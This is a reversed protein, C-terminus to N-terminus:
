ASDRAAIYAQLPDADSDADYHSISEIFLWFLEQQSAIGLKEYLRRRHVRETNPSINLERAGSKSSHGRLILHAIHKERPTLFNSGFKNFARSFHEDFREHDGSDAPDANRYHLEIMRCVVPAIMNLDDVERESFEKAPAKREILFGVFKRPGLHALFMGEDVVKKESYYVRYYETEKIADPAIESFPYFGSNTDTAVLRNYYPGILYAGRLLTFHLRDRAASPTLDVIRVPQYDQYYSFVSALDYPVYLGILQRLENWFENKDLNELLGAIQELTRRNLVAPTAM